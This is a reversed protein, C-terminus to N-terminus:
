RKSKESAVEDVKIDVGLAAKAVRALAPVEGVLHFTTHTHSISRGTPLQAAPSLSELEYFGGLAPGGTEPPGDNYSNFADGRYPEQQKGWLNNVYGVTTPEPPLSFHVLSLVGNELDISGAVPKVRAPSIGIKSRFQGDGRFWIAQANVRLRDQPVDGFYDSNVIPGLAVDGAGKYPVIISTRPGAPFQGLSWIAILGRERSMAPGRNTLTNISQFGVLKLKGASVAAEAEGGFLKGFHHLKQLHIERTVELQFQTGGANQLRM